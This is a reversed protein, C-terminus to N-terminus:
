KAQFELKLRFDAALSSMEEVMTTVVDTVFEQHYLAKGVLFLHRNENMCLKSFVLQQALLLVEPLLAVRSEDYELLFVKCTLLDRGENFGEECFESSVSVAEHLTGEEDIFEIQYTEDELSYSWSADLREAVSEILNEFELYEIEEDLFSEAGLASGPVVGTIM